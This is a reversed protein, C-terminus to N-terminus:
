RVGPLTKRAATVATTSVTKTAVCCPQSTVACVGELDVIVFPTKTAADEIREIITDENADSVISLRPPVILSVKPKGPRANQLPLKITEPVWCAISVAM